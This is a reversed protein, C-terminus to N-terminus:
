ADRGRALGREFLNAASRSAAEIASGDVHDFEVILWGVSASAAAAAIAPAPDVLGSGVPVNVFPEAGYARSPLSVGDKLHLSVVRDGLGEIVAAPDGGGVTVWFIDIQLDIADGTRAALRDIALIGDELRTMEEDHNHYGLRLGHETAVEAASLLRDAMEDVAAATAFGRGSMIMRVAGLAGLADAARAVADLDGVDAWTHASAVALGLDGLVQRAAVPDAGPVDVTEVGSFGAGAIARLTAVDLGLGSGGFRAPDRFTYLQVALPLPLSRGDSL